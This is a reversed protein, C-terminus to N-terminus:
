WAHKGHGFPVYDASTNVYQHRAGEGEVQRQRAFRFPDFAHANDYLAEDRHMPTAAAALLTGRPIHTGDSLIVDKKAKRM